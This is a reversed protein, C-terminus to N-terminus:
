FYSRNGDNVGELLVQFVKYLCDLARQKLSSLIEIFVM